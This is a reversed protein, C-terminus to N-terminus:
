ILFVRFLRYLKFAGANLQALAGFQPLKNDTKIFGAYAVSVVDIADPLSVVAQKAQEHKTLLRYSSEESPLNNSSSQHAATTFSCTGLDRFKNGM